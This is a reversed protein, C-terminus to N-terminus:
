YCSASAHLPRLVNWSCCARSEICVVCFLVTDFAHLTLDLSPIPPPLPPPVQVGLLQLAAPLGEHADPRHRATDHGPAARVPRWRRKEAGLRALWKLFIYLRKKWESIILVSCPATCSDNWQVVRLCPFGKYFDISEGQVFEVIPARTCICAPTEGCEVDWVCVCVGCGGRVKDTVEFLMHGDVGLDQFRRAYAGFDPHRSLRRVQMYFLRLLPKSM